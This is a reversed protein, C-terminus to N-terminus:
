KDVSAASIVVAPVNQERVLRNFSALDSSSLQKFKQLQANAKTALDEWVVDSQSTPANDSSEVVSELAALKNNLKIPFNLPDESSRNKTQYLEEEVDTLKKTLTKAADVVKPDKVREAYENLQKRIERIDIVTQNVASVKDRIQLALELQRAYDQPTTSLRLDKLVEFKQTQTQDDVTLRVQYSGPVILPGRVSGAWMILGPFTTADPYRLNWVFRNLGVEAPARDAGPRARPFDDDEDEPEANHEGKAAPAKSSFRKVLKGESDLFEITLDGKPKAALSYYVVTGSAPNQGTAPDPPRFGGGGATRYTEKPAFLHLPEKLAADSLQYVLPLDDLIWFARGQTAVVLERERKHFALDTIPVVPLNLQFPQWSAGGNLSIYMGTETGAVLLDRHNPDERIVRTFAPASIGTDIAKWSKGYDTTKYLFPRFDDSKYMTAAFYATGAEFPSAEISNIQIWEPMGKPTVNDWHKGADQTVYVLGDDSGTWIVGKKVTSEAITFITDYYEVATNDKTIPGGTPGQKSKDNRTLDPSIPEWSQGENTTKFLINGGAYFTSPDNPSFITPFDWQFRYKMGEAGYGMPNDPWVTIDRMQGTRHDYRTLLGDYSGAYVIESNKPDPIVWGSEGGGVDYWDHSSIGGPARTAIRVTSNDQQAGYAHYPFDQDLAVRYFQATPQKDIGTWTKGGNTSVNAGGDNGEIMRNSDTPAIWLYHNDGHPTRISTFSKGGDDSRFFGVNTAYVTDLKLPDAFIRSYYWARQRISRNDNVRTWNKGANESRYLGGDEAEVIAWVRDSDVPSVTVGIRGLVGKPMGLARTLDTWTDGGDTSKFLGSGPGGSDFSWPSRKVEWFAAYLVRPNNPDMALDVAGAKPGRTYIQKWTTGGDMSRYIGREENPGFLHGLAAVYVIDPNKSNVRVVGIHYTNELGIHKWTKGADVSKYMGDGNSANGRVDPEGMGVYITNPDSESVAISGVSGTKFQGDTIPQWGAGGDTTKWVGGGTAGFYYVNPQSTVGAVTDVRGGRFPGILRYELDKIANFDVQAYLSASCVFAALLKKM